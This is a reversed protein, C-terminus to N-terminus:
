EDARKLSPEICSPKLFPTAAASSDSNLGSKLDRRCLHLMSRLAFGFINFAFGGHGDNKFNCSVLIPFDFWSSDVSFATM